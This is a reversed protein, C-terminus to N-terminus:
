VIKRLDITDKRLLEDEDKINFPRLVTLGLNNSECYEIITQHRKIDLILFLKFPYLFHFLGDDKELLSKRTEGFMDSDFAEFWETWSDEIKYLYDLKKYILDLQNKSFLNNKVLPILDNNDLFNIIRYGTQIELIKRKLKESIMRRRRHNPMM